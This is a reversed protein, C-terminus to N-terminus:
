KKGRKKNKMLNKYLRFGTWGIVARTTVDYDSPKKGVMNSMAWGCLMGQILGVLFAGIVKLWEILSQAILEPTLKTNDYFM